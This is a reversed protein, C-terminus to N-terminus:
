AEEDEQIEEPIRGYMETYHHLKEALEDTFKGPLARWTWNIGVTSPTNMRSEDGLGLLDQATVITLNSPSAMLERMMVWNREEDDRIRMYDEAFKVSDEPASDFWGLITQNDHTGTYGVSNKPYNFPLYENDEAGDRSDFAFQLIKMGPFGTSALLDRVSDTLFGLDEAIIVNRSVKEEVKKFLDMGPGKCWEGNKATTAGYPIAYYSDFGRFHDIRVINYLQTLYEIRRTWWDYGTERHYDWDYLPNGWLQGDASFGDPPCGAVALPKRDEDLQFLRPHSWADVSDLAVYIPLDGIIDIGKDNAYKRLTQWQNFFLYQIATYFDVDEQLEQRLKEARVADYNKEEEPWELWPKGNNKDKLAMFLAYDPLWDRNQEVFDNYDAPRNALLNKVAKRLVRFRNNYLAGYDVREPDSGWDIDQYDEPELLHDDALADLDIFYPNGAFTSFSAYPSDGFSTPVVPLLQWVTQGSKELFDVFEYASKGMTGIGQDGPLSSLHMLVGNRRM